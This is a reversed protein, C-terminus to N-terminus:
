IKFIVERVSTTGESQFTYDGTIIDNRLVGKLTGENRDKEFFDYQLDGTVITDNVNLQLNVTDRKLTMQYCGNLVLPRGATVVTDIGNTHVTQSSQATDNAAAGPAADPNNCACFVLVFFVKYFTHM